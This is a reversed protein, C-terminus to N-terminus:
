RTSRGPGVGVGSRPNARPERKASVSKSISRLSAPTANRPVSDTHLLHRGQSEVRRLPARPKFIEGGNRVDLQHPQGTAGPHWLLSLYPLVVVAVTSMDNTAVNIGRSEGDHHKGEPGCDEDATGETLLELHTDEHDPDEGQLAGAVCLAQLHSM